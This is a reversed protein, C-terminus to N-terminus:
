FKTMDVENKDSQLLAPPNLFNVAEILFRDVAHLM